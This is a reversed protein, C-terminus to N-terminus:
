LIKNQNVITYVKKLNAKKTMKNIKTKNINFLSNLQIICKDFCNIANKVMKQFNNIKKLFLLLFHQM